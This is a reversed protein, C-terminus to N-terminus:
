EAGPLHERVHQWRNQRNKRSLDTEGAVLWRALSENGQGFAEMAKGEVSVSVAGANTKVLAWVDCQSDAIGGLLPVKHEAIALSLIPGDYVVTDRLLEVIPGPLGSPSGSAGEWSVATELASFGRKWQRDPDALRERWSGIGRTAICLRNM